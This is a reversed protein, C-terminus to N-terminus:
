LRVHRNAGSRAATCKDHQAKMEAASLPKTKVVGPTGKMSAHDHMATGDMKQGMLAKCHTHLEADNMEAMPKTSAAEAPAKPTEKALAPMALLVVSAALSLVISKM